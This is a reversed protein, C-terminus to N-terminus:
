GPQQDGRLGRILMFIGVAVVVFGTFWLLMEVPRRLFWFVVGLALFLLGEGIQKQGLRYVGYGGVAFPVSWPLVWTLLVMVAGAALLATGRGIDQEKESIMEYDMATLGQDEQLIGM